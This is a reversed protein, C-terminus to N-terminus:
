DFGDKFIIDTPGQTDVEVAGIDCALGKPRSEGRQDEGPCYNNDGADIAPSNNGPIQTETFGGNSGLAGLLPNSNIVNNCNANGFGSTPCGYQIISDDLNSEALNHYITDGDTSAANDWMIIHRMTPSSTGTPDASSYMAGGYGANNGTFTSNLIDPSSAGNDGNNYIAGGNAIALNNHFTVNTLTPHSFGNEGDNYLAGGETAVNQTFTVRDLEATGNGALDNLFMAGGRPALNSRFTIDQLTPKSMGNNWGASYFAGGDVSAQNSTFTLQKFNATNIGNVQGSNYVAGGYDAMNQDFYGFIFQSRSTGNYANNYVAGGSNAASNSYFESNVVIPSSDGGQNGHNYMAGGNYATNSEFTLNVLQPSSEGDNDAQNFMGGGSGSNAQNNFFRVNSMYPNCASNAGSGDCFLGAGSNNPFDFSGLSSYGDHIELDAIVTNALIKTGQTGDLYLVHYSNDTDDNPNGINGSLYVPNAAINRGSPSNENGAFGGLVTVGPKVQFSLSRDSGSTPYYTGTKIWVEHCTTSSLATQLDMALSGWDSGNGVNTGNTTVRCINLVEVSGIDCQGNQPRSIGRQDQNECSFTDGNNIASSGVGLLMTRTFGRNMALAGLKPDTTNLNNCTRSAGSNPASDIGNCGGQIVSYIVEADNGDIYLQGGSPATNAWLITNYVDIDSNAYHIAGGSISASNNALTINNLEASTRHGVNYIAGGKEGSNNYFTSNRLFLGSDNADIAIAGGLKASNNSFTGRAIVVNIEGGSYELSYIAGGNEKAQNNNLEVNHFVPNTQSNTGDTYNFVAGGNGQGQINSDATNNLFRINELIPQARTNDSASNFLAGGNRAFNNVFELNRLYPSCTGDGVAACVMGGGDSNETYGDQIIFGDIETDNGIQTGVTASYLYVVHHSNDSATSPSGINGSLVAKNYIYDRQTLLVETGYFGGYVQVGPKVSFSANRNSGSTPYYTGSKVWIEPCNIPDNLASQLSKTQQWSSGNANSSGSTSVHCVQAEGIFTFFLGALLALRTVKCPILQYM